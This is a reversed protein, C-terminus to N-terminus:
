NEIEELRTEYVENKLQEIDDTKVFRITENNGYVGQEKNSVEKYTKVEKKGNTFNYTKMDNLKTNNNFGRCIYM